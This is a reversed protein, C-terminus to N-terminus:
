LNGVKTSVSALLEHFVLRVLLLNVPSCGHRRSIEIFNCLLDCKPM